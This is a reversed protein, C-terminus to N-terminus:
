SFNCIAIIFLKNNIFLIPLHLMHTNVSGMMITDGIRPILYATKNRNICEKLIQNREHSHIDCLFVVETSALIEEM